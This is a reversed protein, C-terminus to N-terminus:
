VVLDAHWHKSVKGQSGKATNWFNKGNNQDNFELSAPDDNWRQWNIWTTPHPVFQGDNKIWSSTKKQLNVAEIITDLLSKEIRKFKEMAKTKEVKRPYIKWFSEFDEDTMLAKKPASPTKPAAAAAPESDSEGQPEQYKQRENERKSLLSKMREILHKSFIKWDEFQLLWIQKFYDLITKLEEKDIRFDGSLIEIQFDTDELQFYEADALVELIMLFIAYWKLDFKTRVAKIKLDDRLNNDHSFWEANNKRPRAM